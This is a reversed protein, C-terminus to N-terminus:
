NKDILKVVIKVVQSMISITRHKNYDFAGMMMPILIFESEKM